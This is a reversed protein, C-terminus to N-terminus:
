VGALPPLAQLPTGLAPLPLWLLPLLKQRVEQPSNKFCQGERRLTAAMQPISLM